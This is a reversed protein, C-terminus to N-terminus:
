RPMRFQAGSSDTISGTLTATVVQASVHRAPLASRQDLHPHCPRHVQSVYNRGLRTSLWTASELATRYAKEVIEERPVAVNLFRKVFDSPEPGCPHGIRLCSRPAKGSHMPHIKRCFPSSRSAFRDSLEQLIHTAPRQRVAGDGLRNELPRNSLLRGRELHYHSTGQLLDTQPSSRSASFRGGPWSYRGDRTSLLSAPMVGALCWSGSCRTKPTPRSVTHCVCDTPQSNAFLALRRAVGGSFVIREPLDCAILQRACMSYNDAMSELAARFVHGAELNGEHLNQLFGASGCPGSHFALSARLDTAPLTALASEMRKWADKESIGGMETLLRLLAGLSRGASIHTITRLFRGNFYPRVEGTKSTPDSASDSIVAVQGGTGVNM